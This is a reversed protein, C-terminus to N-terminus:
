PAFPESLALGPGLEQLGFAPPNRRRALLWPGIREAGLSSDGTSEPHMTDSSFSAQSSRRNPPFGAQASANSM